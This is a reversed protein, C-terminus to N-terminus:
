DTQTLQAWGTNIVVDLGSFERCDNQYTEFEKTILDYYMQTFTQSLANGFLEVKEDLTLQEWSRGDGRPGGLQCELGTIGQSLAPELGNIEDSM